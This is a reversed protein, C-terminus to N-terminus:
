DDAEPSRSKRRWPPPVSSVTTIPDLEVFPGDVRTLRVLEGELEDLHRDLWEPTRATAYEDEVFEVGIAQNRGAKKALYLAMDAVEILVEHTLLEPHRKFAPLAVWGASCTRQVRLGDEDILPTGGVEELIRRAVRDAESREADTCVLLFEEGGWRVVLDTQRLAGELRRATEVLVRDGVIHGHVDNVKKFHDLDVMYFILDVNRDTERGTRPDHRRLTAAVTSDIISAFFRRNRVRTLADTFSMEKLERNAEALQASREAVASELRRREVELRSTRFKLLALVLGVIALVATLRFWWREWWPPLVTFAFTAPAKSWVGAASRCRVEFRYNGAALAPYRVQRQKTTIPEDDLGILQYEFRVQSPNRFTLGSFAATFTGQDHDVEVEGGVLVEEGGLTV